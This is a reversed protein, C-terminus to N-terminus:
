PLIEGYQAHPVSWPKYRAKRLSPRRRYGADQAEWRVNSRRISCTIGVNHITRMRTKRM